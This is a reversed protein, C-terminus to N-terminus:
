PAAEGEPQPPEGASAVAARVEALRDHNLRYRTGTAAHDRSLVLGQRVLRGLVAAVQAVRSRVCHELAWWEAIGRLDDEAQPHALLHSLIARRIADEDDEMDSAKAM